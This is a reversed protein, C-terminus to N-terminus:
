DLENRVALVGPIHWIDQEVSAYLRPSLSVGSITVTGDTVIIRFDPLYTALAPNKGLIAAVDQKLADDSRLALGHAIQAATADMKLYHTTGLAHKISEPAKAWAPDVMLAQGQVRVLPALPDIPSTVDGELDNAIRLLLSNVVGTASEIVIGELRAVPRYGDRCEVLMHPQLEIAEPPPTPMQTDNLPLTRAEVPKVTPPWVQGSLGRSLRCWLASEHPLLFVSGLRGQTQTARQRFREPLSPLEDLHVQTGLRLVVKSRTEEAM